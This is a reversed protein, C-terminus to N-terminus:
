IMERTEREQGRSTTMRIGLRSENSYFRFGYETLCAELSLWVLDSLSRHRFDRQSGSEIICNFKVVQCIGLICKCAFFKGRMSLTYCLRRNGADWLYFPGKCARKTKPHGYHHLLSSQGIFLPLIRLMSVQFMKLKDYSWTGWKDFFSLLSLTSITLSDYVPLSAFITPFVGATPGAPFITDTGRSM